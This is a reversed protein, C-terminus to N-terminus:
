QEPDGIQPEDQLINFLELGSVTEITDDLHTLVKELGEKAKKLVDPRLGRVFQSTAVMKKLNCEAGVEMARAKDFGSEYPSRFGNLFALEEGTIECLVRNNDVKAIVKM